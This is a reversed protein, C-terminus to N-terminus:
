LEKYKFDFQKVYTYYPDGINALRSYEMEYIYYSTLSFNQGFNNCRFLAKLEEHLAVDQAKTDSKYVSQLQYSAIDTDMGLFERNVADTNDILNHYPTETGQPATLTYVSSLSTNAILFAMFESQMSM